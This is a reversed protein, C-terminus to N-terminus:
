MIKACSTTKGESQQPTIAARQLFIVRTNWNALLEVQRLAAVEKWAGLFEKARPTKM